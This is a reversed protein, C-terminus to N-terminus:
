PMSRCSGPMSHAAMRSQGMTPPLSRLNSAAATIPRGPTFCTTGTPSVATATTAVVQHRALFAASASGISQSSPGCALSSLAAM